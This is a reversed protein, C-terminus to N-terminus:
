TWVSSSVRNVAGLRGQVWGQVLRPRRAKVKTKLSRAVSSAKTAVTLWHLLMANRGDKDDVVFVGALQSPLSSVVQAPMLLMADRNSCSQPPLGGAAYTLFAATRYDEVELIVHCWTHTLLVPQWYVPTDLVLQTANHLGNM